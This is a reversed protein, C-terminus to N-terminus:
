EHVEDSGPPGKRSVWIPSAWAQEGDIQVVHAYYYDTEREAEDDTLDLEVDVASEGDHVHLVRGNKILEVREIGTTGYANVVIRRAGSAGAFAAGMPHGDIEFELLIRARTTGYCHRNWLGDWIGQRTLEPACVAALGGNFSSLVWWFDDGPHGGSHDASAIFGLKVGQELAHSVYCSEPRRMGPIIQPESEPSLGCGWHAYVEVVRELAPDHCAWNTKGHLHPIVMAKGDCKKLAAYLERTDGENVYAQEDDRFYVNKDGDKRQPQHTSEYASFTVFRGPENWEAAARCTQQWDEDCLDQSHDTVMCFDLDSRNRAYDYDGAPDNRLHNTASTDASIRSHTHTDGWFVTYGPPERTTRTPNSRAYFGFAEDVVALRHIGPEALRVLFAHVGREEPLMRHAALEAGAGDQLRVTGAYDSVINEYKDRARVVADFAEGVTTSSAITLELKAPKDSVFELVPPDPVLRFGSGPGSCSGDLDTAVEVPWPGACRPAVLGDMHQQGCAVTVTDGARLPADRITVFLYRTTFFEKGKRGQPGLTASCQLGVDPNSCVARGKPLKFRLAGGVEVGKAGATYVVKLFYRQGATIRTSPIELAVKGNNKGYQDRRM